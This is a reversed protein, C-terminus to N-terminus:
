QLYCLLKTFVALKKRLLTNNNYKHFWHPQQAQLIQPLLMELNLPIQLSRIKTQSARKVEQSLTKKAKIKKKSTIQKFKFFNIKKHILYYCKNGEFEEEIIEEGGQRSRDKASKSRQLQAGQKKDVESSRPQREAPAPMQLKTQLQTTGKETSM